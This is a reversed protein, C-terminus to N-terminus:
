LLVTSTRHQHTLTLLLLTMTFFPSSPSSPPLIYSSTFSITKKRASDLWDWMVLDDFVTHWSEGYFIYRQKSQDCFYIDWKQKQQRNKFNMSFFYTPGFVDSMKIEYIINWYIELLFNWCMSQEISKANLTQSLVVLLLFYFCEKQFIYLM